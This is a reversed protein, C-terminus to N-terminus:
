GTRIRFLTPCLPLHFVTGEILKDMREKGDGINLSLSYIASALRWEVDCWDIFLSDVTSKEFTPNRKVNSLAEYAEQGQSNELMRDLYARWVSMKRISWLNSSYPYSRVMILLLPILPPFRERDISSTHTFSHLLNMRLLLHISPSWYFWISHFTNTTSPNKM